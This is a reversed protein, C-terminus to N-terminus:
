LPKKREFIKINKFYNKFLRRTQTHSINLTKSVKSVWGWKMFDINKIKNFIDNLQEKTLKNYGGQNKGMKYARERQMQLAKNYGYKRISAEFPAVMNGCAMADAVNEKPTGWYLHKINSCNCNNCAHCLHVKIKNPITTGLYYALIGRFDRSGGGIEICPLNLELHKQREEKPKLIYDSIQVHV